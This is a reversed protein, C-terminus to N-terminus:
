PQKMEQILLSCWAQLTSRQFKARSKVFEATLDTISQCQM